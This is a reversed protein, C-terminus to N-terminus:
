AAPSIWRGVWYPLRGSPILMVLGPIIIKKFWNPDQFPYSFAKGFDM